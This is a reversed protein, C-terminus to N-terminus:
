DSDKATGDRGTIPILVKFPEQIGVNKSFNRLRAMVWPTVEQGRAIVLTGAKTFVNQALIMNARLADTRVAKIDYKIQTVLIKELSDLVAPDYWGKRTRLRSMATGSDLGSATLGDLDLAVKLVRAGLPIMERKVEDAPLGSGDFRKGQYLITKAVGDLRPINAILASGVQPHAALMQREQEGLTQGEFMKALTEEPVTVCGIQSLMAAIEVEWAKDGRLEEYIQRVMRRVRSARGFATPNVLALVDVLVKISGRLTSELLDKEARILRYQEVGEALARDLVDPPCPKTLFRFIKGENVANIAVDTESCGTLMMRVSEPAEIRARSLFAAGDMGPMRMDSVIVAYPGNSGIKALGEEGGLAVDVDYQKRLGRKYSSLVNPEDDVLLVKAPM